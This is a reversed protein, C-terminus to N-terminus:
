LPNGLQSEFKFNLNDWVTVRQPIMVVFTVNPSPLDVSRPSTVKLSVEKTPNNHPYFSLLPCLPTFVTSATRLTKSSHPSVNAGQAGEPPLASIFHILDM